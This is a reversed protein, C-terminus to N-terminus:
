EPEECSSSRCSTSPSLHEIRVVMGSPITHRGLIQHESLTMGVTKYDAGDYLLYGVTLCKLPQLPELDEKEEWASTVGVADVWEVCVIPLDRYQNGQKAGDARMM